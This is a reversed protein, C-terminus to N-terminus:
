QTLFGGARSVLAERVDASQIYRYTDDIHPVDSLNPM